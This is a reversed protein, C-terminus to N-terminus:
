IIINNCMRNGWASHYQFLYYWIISTSIEIVRKLIIIHINEISINHSSVIIILLKHYDRRSISIGPIM